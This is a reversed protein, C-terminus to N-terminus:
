DIVSHRGALLVGTKPSLAKADDLVARVRTRLEKGTFPKYVLQAQFGDELHPKLSDGTYGSILLVKLGPREELLRRALHPGSFIPMIVDSVLLDIRGDYERSFEIAGSPSGAEFVQYGAQRLFRLTVNRVADDDEVLLITDAAPADEASEHTETAQLQVVSAPFEITVTTGHDPKSDLAIRGGTQEVIGHVVALGLGTGHFPGKTTFFPDFAHSRTQADMGCGDDTVSLIIRDSETADSSERRVTFAISGGQPMADKANIALNMVVQELQSRDCRVLAGAQSTIDLQVNEGILRTLLSRLGVVVDSIDVDTPQGIQARGFLMLQRTLARGRETANVIEEIEIANKSEPEATRLIDANGLIAMLLNNFDHAIGGALRGISDLRQVQELHREADRRRTIDRAIVQIGPSGDELEIRRSNCEIWITADDPRKALLELPHGDSVGSLVRGLRSSVESEPQVDILGLAVLHQGILEKNEKGVMECLAPNTSRIVGQADLTLLGDPAGQVLSFVRRYARERERTIAVLLIGVVGVQLAGIITQSLDTLYVGDPVIWGSRQLFFVCLVFGLSAGTLHLAVGSGLTAAGMMVIPIYSAVAPSRIGDTLLVCSM